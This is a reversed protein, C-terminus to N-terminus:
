FPTDKGTMDKYFKKFENMQGLPLNKYHVLLDPYEKLRECCVEMGSVYYQKM